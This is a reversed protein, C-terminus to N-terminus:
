EGEKGKKEPSVEVEKEMYKASLNVPLCVISNAVHVDLRIFLSIYDSSELSALPYPKSLISERGM